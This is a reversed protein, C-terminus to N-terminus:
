QAGFSLRCRCNIVEQPPGFPDHPFRLPFGGVTFATDVPVEEGDAAKHSPRTRDDHRALWRKVVRSQPERRRREAAAVYTASNVAESAVNVAAVTLMGVWVISGAALLAAVGAGPSAVYGPSALLNSVEELVRRPIHENEVVDQLGAVFTASAGVPDQVGESRAIDEFVHRVVPVVHAQMLLPWVGAPWRVLDPRSPDAFVQDKVLGLYERFAAGVAALVRREADDLDTLSAM